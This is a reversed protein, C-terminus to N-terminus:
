SIEEIFGVVNRRVDQVPDHSFALINESFEELLEEGTSFLLEQVKKITDCRENPKKLRDSCENLWDIVQQHFFFNSISLHNQSRERLIFANRKVKTRAIAIKENIFLSATEQSAPKSAFLSSM